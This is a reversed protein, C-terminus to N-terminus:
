RSQNPDKDLYHLFGSGPTLMMTTDSNGLVQRYAQMSRYFAFFDPDKGVAAAYIKTAEADGEGRVIDSQKQADALIASRENEATARVKQAQEEGKARAEKAEKERETQMRRFVAESNAQPLDARMIRVDIVNVGFGDKGEGNNVAAAGMTQQNVLDTISRMIESRSGSLVKSLPQGGMVQRLSSDVISNLRDRLTREDRMSQYFRLPDVIRYRAFSDVVVRKQDGLLIEKPEANFELIRNDFFVVDEVFPTKMHLGPDKVTRVPKGFELVIAQQTQPLTYLTNALLLAALIFLVAFKTM